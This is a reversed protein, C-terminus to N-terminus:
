PTRGEHAALIRAAVESMQLLLRERDRSPLVLGVGARVCAEALRRRDERASELSATPTAALAARARSIIGVGSVDHPLSCTLLAELAERLREVHAALADREAVVREIWAAASEEDKAGLRSRLDLMGAIEALRARHLQECEAELAVIRARAADREVLTRCWLCRGEADQTETPHPHQTSYFNSQEPVSGGDPTM